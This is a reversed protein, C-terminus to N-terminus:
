KTTEYLRCLGGFVSRKHQNRERQGALMEAKHETYYQRFYERVQERNQQVRERQTRTPVYRNVCGCGEIHRREEQALERKSGCPYERVLEIRADSDKDLIAFSSVYGRSRGSKWRKHSSRHNHMRRRLPITTSGIYVAPTVTSTIKYIKSNAYNPM